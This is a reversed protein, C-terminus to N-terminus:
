AWPCSVVEARPALGIAIAGSELKVPFGSVAIDNVKGSAIPGNGKRKVRQLNLQVSGDPTAAELAKDDWQGRLMIVEDGDRVFGSLKNAENFFLIGGTVDISKSM